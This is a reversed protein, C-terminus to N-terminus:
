AAHRVEGRLLSKHVKFGIREGLAPVILCVCGLCRAGIVERALKDAIPLDSEYVVLLVPVLGRQRLDRLRRGGPPLHRASWRPTKV